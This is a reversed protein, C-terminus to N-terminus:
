LFFPMSGTNENVMFTYIFMNKNQCFFRIRCLYACSEYMINHEETFTTNASLSM